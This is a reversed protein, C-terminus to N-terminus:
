TQTSVNICSLHRAHDVIADVVGDATYKAAEAAVEFGLERVTASTLPSITVLRTRGLWASAKDGLLRVLARAINSSTVTVYDVEGRAFWNAVEDDVTICEVQSYAAVEAVDAVSRLRERLLERGRDARVLLVRKGEVPRLLEEALAESRYEAPLLDPLLQRQRLSSATQPGIAAVQVTGLSRLDRGMNALRDFFAAVGNSSTFVIWDYNAANRVALDLAAPDPPPGITIVPMAKVVAGHRELRQMLESAQHRPRTVVVRRGFLPRREFWSPTIRQGVVEGVIVIAPPELGSKEVESVIRELPAEVTRQRGWSAWQIVAVPTTPSRGHRTLARVIGALHSMGMYIVLTGPFRALASWDLNPPTRDGSVQHGTVYAVASSYGRHTLPIGCYAAAATGSTIGPVIEYPLGAQEFRIVQDWCRGFLCPDGGKLHVVTKGTLAEQVILDTAADCREAHNGPLDKLGIKKAKSAHVLLEANALRDYVVVDAQRLCEVGRLTILGTDGPGAGVLYVWGPPSAKTESM